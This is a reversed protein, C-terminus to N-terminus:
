ARVEKPLNIKKVVRLRHSYGLPTVIGQHDIDELKVAGSAHIIKPFKNHQQILIGVHIIKGEENDFFALDGTEAEELFNVVEGILAQDKADRPLSVGFFRMVIQSFGSCDIGAHTRGGWLYPTNLFSSACDIVTSWKNTQHEFDAFCGAPYFRNQHFLPYPLPSRSIDNTQEIGLQKNDVYGEYGDLNSKVKSWKELSEIVTFTEGFLIQSILESKDSPEARMPVIGLNCIRNM